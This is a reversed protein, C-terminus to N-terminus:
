IAPQIEESPRLAVFSRYLLLDYVIKLGGAVYFPVSMLSPVGYLLGALVPALAAGISRAVGTVGSAASREDARVVAMTYSQRTPVDMQSISFRLWLVLVALKASPMLPVLILLVNSPLHTFVMTNILGFKEAIRAAVLASLAALANAVLFIAGLTLLDVNWRAKFWLALFSDMIFAGGFADLAFLASLKMVVPRSEHLGLFLKVPSAGSAPRAVETAPSLQTFLIALAAGVAAYLLIVVHFGAFQSVVGGIQNGIAATLAGLLTYWAFLRTRRRPDIVHALAAQEVPLFPGVEKGNPSIVGITAAVLLLIFSTTSVFAVGAAAMLIAGIILTRKRGFRDAHTTLALSIVTDGVLTLTVLLGIRRDSWGISRLYLALIISVFGYAAMRLGRATFLLGIDRNPTM